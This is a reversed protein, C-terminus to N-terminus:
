KKKFPNIKSWLTQFTKSSYVGESEFKFGKAMWICGLVSPVLLEVGAIVIKVWRDKKQDDFQELKLKQEHERLRLEEEAHGIEFLRKERKEDYEWEAKVCDLRIKTLTELEETVEQYEKAGPTLTKLKNQLRLIEEDFKVGIHEDM